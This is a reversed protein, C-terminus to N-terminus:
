HLQRRRVLVLVLGVLLLVGGLGLMVGIWPSLGTESLEEGTTQSATTEDAQADAEAGTGDDSSSDGANGDAGSTAGGDSGAADDDGDAAVDDQGGTSDGAADGTTSGTPSTTPTGTPSATPTGTPGATPSGTPSPDGTPGGTATPTATPTGTPTPTSSECGPATFVNTDLSVQATRALARGEVEAGTTVTVSASAMITGVFTSDTGLTASSGVQWFVNCAQAGNILDVDSASATILTSAVQFIFVSDTNGQGDLTLTGSLELPGSSRYVGDPLTLGVLDGTVAATPARGAADVYAIGLDSQAQAAHADGAHRTGGFEGPPFGTIASGPSVGLDGNMTTEGTNTVTEGGLVSYSLTTGLGVTPTAASAPVPALILGALVLVLTIAM